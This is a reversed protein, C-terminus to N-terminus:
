GKVNRAMSMIASNAAAVVATSMESLQSLHNMLMQMEFMDGISIASRRSKIQVLKAKASLTADHVVHFLTHVSFGAQIPKDGTFYNLDGSHDSNDINGPSYPGAPM